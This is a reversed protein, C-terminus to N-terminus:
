AMNDQYLVTYIYRVNLGAYKYWGPIKVKLGSPQPALFRVPMPVHMVMRRKENRYFVNRSKSPAGAGSTGATAAQLIPVVNLKEGSRATTMNGEQVLQLLTKTGLSNYRTALASYCAPALGLTNPLVTYNSGQWYALIGKNVDALVQDATATTGWAATYGATLDNHTTVGSQNLLGYYRAEGAVGTNEGNLAVENLHRESAEIATAMRESPLPRIMRAAQVLEDQTYQYSIGGTSVAIEVVAGAVDVGPLDDAAANIRKGQGVKDYVQYRVSSADPGAESTVPILLRYQAETYEKAYTEAETYALQSVLFAMGEQSDAALIYEHNWDLKFIKQLGTNIENWRKEDVAVQKKQCSASDLVTVVKKGQSM